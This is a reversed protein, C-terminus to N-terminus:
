ENQLKLIKGLILLCRLLTFSLILLELIALYFIFFYQNQTILIKASFGVLAIFLLSKICNSLYNTSSKYLPTHFFIGLASNYENLKNKKNSNAKFTILVTLITLIFGTSTFSINSIDTILNNLTNYNPIEIKGTGVLYILILIIILSIFYDWFIPAKFYFNILKKM